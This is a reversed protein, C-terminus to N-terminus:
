MSTVALIRISSKNPRIVNLTRVATFITKQSIIDCLRIFLYWYSLFRNSGDEPYFLHYHTNVLRFIM